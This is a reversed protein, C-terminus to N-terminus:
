KKLLRNQVYKTLFHFIEIVSTIVKSKFHFFQPLLLFQEYQAIEEKKVTKLFSDAASADSADIHLLPNVSILIFFYVIKYM